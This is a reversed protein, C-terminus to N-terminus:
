AAGPPRSGLAPGYHVPLVHSQRRPFDRLGPLRPRWSSRRAVIRPAAPEGDRFRYHRTWSSIRPWKRAADGLFSGQNVEIAGIERVAAYVDGFCDRLMARALGLFNHPQRFQTIGHRQWRQFVEDPSWGDFSPLEGRDVVIMDHAGRAFSLAVACGAIDAGVVIVRVPVAHRLDFVPVM